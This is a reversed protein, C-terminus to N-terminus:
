PSGVSGYGRGPSSSPQLWALGNGLLTALVSDTSPCPHGPSSTDAQGEASAGVLYATIPCWPRVGTSIVWLSLSLGLKTPKPSSGIFHEPTRSIPSSRVSNFDKPCWGEWDQLGGAEWTPIAFQATLLYGWKYCQPSLSGASADGSTWQQRRLRWEM